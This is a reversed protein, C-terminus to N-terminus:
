QSVCSVHWLSVAFSEVQFKVNISSGLWVLHSQQYIIDNIYSIHVNM